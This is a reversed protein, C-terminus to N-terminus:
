RDYGEREWSDRDWRDREWRERDSGREAERREYLARTFDRYENMDIRGDKNADWRDSEARLSESMEEHEIVGDGDKDMGKFWEDARSNPDRSRGWDGGRGSDRSGEGGSGRESSGRDSNRESGRNGERSDRSDGSGGSPPAVPASGGPAPSGGFGRVGGTREQFYAIYQDRTLGDGSINQKKAWERAANPDRM